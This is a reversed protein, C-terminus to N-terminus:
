LQRAQEALASDNEMRAVAAAFPLVVNCVLIDARGASLGQFVSRLKQLVLGRRMTEWAGSMRWQEVLNGLVRLRRADLRSPQLTRGLPEPLATSLGTLRLGVARFFARDRGYGLAEALAPILCVDYASFPGRAQAEYLQALLVNAKQEFRLLGAFRLLRTREEESLLPMIRQCPWVAPQSIRRPLDNLSCVPVLAGDQRAIPMATDCILVVHLIVNTYRADSHHQHAYWDSSRIHFEVDGTASGEHQCNRGPYEVEAFSQTFDLVADRIDPGQPGGPRGACLLMCSDGNSLPLITKLPLAQWCRAIDDEHVPVSNECACASKM